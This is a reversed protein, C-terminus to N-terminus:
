PLIIKLVSKVTGNYEVLQQKAKGREREREREGAAYEIERQKTSFHRSGIRLTSGSVVSQASCVRIETRISGECKKVAASHQDIAPDTRHYEFRSKLEANRKKRRKKKQKM